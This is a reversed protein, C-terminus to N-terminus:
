IIESVKLLVCLSMEHIHKPDEMIKRIMYELIVPIKIKSQTKFFGMACVAMEDVTMDKIINELASEYSFEVPRKRCINMYFFMHILQDKTLRDPRRSFKDIM